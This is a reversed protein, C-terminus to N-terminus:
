IPEIKNFSIEPEFCLEDMASHIYRASGSRPVKGQFKMTRMALVEGLITAIAVM